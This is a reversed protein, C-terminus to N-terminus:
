SIMRLVSNQEDSWTRLTLRRSEPHWVEPIPKKM